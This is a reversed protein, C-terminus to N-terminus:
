APPDPIFFGDSGIDLGTVIDRFIDGADSRPGDRWEDLTEPKEFGYRDSCDDCRTVGPFYDQLSEGCADCDIGLRNM